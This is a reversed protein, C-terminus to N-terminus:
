KRNFLGTNLMKTFGMDCYFWIIIFFWKIKKSRFLVLLLFSISLLQFYHFLIRTTNLFRLTWKSATFTLTINFSFLFRTFIFLCWRVFQFLLLLLFLLFLPFRSFFLLLFCLFHLLFLLLFLLFYRWLLRIKNWFSTKCHTLFWILICM